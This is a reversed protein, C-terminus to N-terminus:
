EALPSASNVQSSLSELDPRSEELATIREDLAMLMRDM